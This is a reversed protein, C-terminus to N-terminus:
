DLHVPNPSVGRELDSPSKAVRFRVVFRTGPHASTTGGAGVPSECGISGGIEDVRRKV